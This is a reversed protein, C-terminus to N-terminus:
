IPAPLDRRKFIVLGCIYFCLGLAFLLLDMGAPGLGIIEGAESYRMLLWQHGPNGHAIEISLSPEYLSFFTLFQTWRFAVSATALIKLMASVFYIGIIIGLTRWRYRDWSSFLAALGALFFGLCFLNLVGPFFQFPNVRTAMAITEKQVGFFTIPFKIDTLPVRLEPYTSEEVSTTWVGMSMGIWILLCIAACGAVTLLAHQVFVRTRSVPQALIMEMMGRNLEGSVVDSGRVLSWISVLMMIMPEDLTLATRGLYSVMWDFDVPSFKRWDSPLLEIIQRFKATDLEGVIWVRFWAFVFLALAVAIFLLISDAIYKKVLPRNM